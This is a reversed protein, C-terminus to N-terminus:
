ALDFMGVSSREGEHIYKWSRSWHIGEDRRIWDWIGRGWYGVMKEILVLM